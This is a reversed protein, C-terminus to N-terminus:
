LASSALWPRPPRPGRHRHRTAPRRRIHPETAISSGPAAVAEPAPPSPVAALRSQKRPEVRCRAPPTAGIGPLIGCFFGIIISRIVAVKHAVLEKFSPFDVSLKPAKYAGTAKKEAQVFIESVAFFGLIMPIFHIGALLYPLSQLAPLPVLFVAVIAYPVHGTVVAGLALTKDAGGKVLANWGAHLVAAGLVALFVTLTM